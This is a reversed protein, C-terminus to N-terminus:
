ARERRLRHVVFWAVLLVVVGIVVYNLVDAYQEVVRYQQGLLVGAGVLLGNWLLSGVATLLTFRWLAMRQTGAPLSVLSRVGPVLRGVLVAIQGHRDFWEEAREIHRSEVLPLRTLLRNARERGLKAGVGYLVLAGLVSGATAAVLLATVDLDGRGALYGALPLVVESPIPPFVTEVLTLVGVGIAGLREVVAVVVGALGGLGSTAPDAALATTLLPGRAGIVGGDDGM